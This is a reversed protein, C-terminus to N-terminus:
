TLHGATIQKERVFALLGGMVEEDLAFVLLYTTPDQSLIATKM